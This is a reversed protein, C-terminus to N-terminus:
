PKPCRPLAGDSGDVSKRIRQYAQKITFMRRFQCRISVRSHAKVEDAEQKGSDINYPAPNKLAVSRARSDNTVDIMLPNTQMIPQESSKGCYKADIAHPQRERCGLKEVAM